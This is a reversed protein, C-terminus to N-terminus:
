KTSVEALFKKVYPLAADAGAQVHNLGPLSVFKANPIHSAAEKAGAHRPDLDGCYLLFPLHIGSLDHNNLPPEELSATTCAILAEADNALVSDREEQSFSRGRMTERRRIEAQPDTLLLKCGDLVGQLATIEAEGGYPSGGGLIFSRFRSAYKTAVRFGIRAGMSYGFYDSKSIGLEDLVAVVDDAMIKTGYDSTAHPKDSRGHGRADFLVLKFDRKLVDAYGRTRWQNLTGSTGHALVLPPGEGEVEYYIKVGNNNAYPM